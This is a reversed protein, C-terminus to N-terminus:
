RRVFMYVRGSPYRSGTAAYEAPVITVARRDRWADVLVGEYADWLEHIGDPVRTPDPQFVVRQPLRTVVVFGNTFYRVVVDPTEIFHEDLPAGLDLFYVDDDGLGEAYWDSASPYGGVLQSIAYGYHIAPRDTTPAFVPQADAAQGTPVYRPQLYNIDCLAVRPTARARQIREDAVARFGAPGDWPRYFTDRVSQRGRGEVEVDAEQGWLFSTALSESIDYDLCEYYGADVRYAQNGAIRRAGLTARLERIFAVGAQDYSTSPYRTAWLERIEPPLAWSGLYDFFVGSYRTSELDRAIADVLFTRLQANAYDFFYAPHEAGAGQMPEAPNLLWAPHAHIHRFLAVLEPFAAYYPHPPEHTDNRALETEYFGHFWRYLFLECGAELLEDRETESFTAYGNTLCIRFRKLRAIREARRCAAAPSTVPQFISSSFFLFDGQARLPVGPPVSAAPETGTVQMAATSTVLWAFWVVPVSRLRSMMM